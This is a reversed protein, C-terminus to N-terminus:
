VFKGQNKEMMEQYEERSIFKKEALCRCYRYSDRLGMDSKKFGGIESMINRAVNAYIEWREKGLDKYKDFMYDNPTLIPLEIYEVPTLLQCM